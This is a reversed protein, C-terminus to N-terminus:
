SVVENEAEKVTKKPDIWTGAIKEDIMTKYEENTNYQRIFKFFDDLIFAPASKGRTIKEMLDDIEQTIDHRDNFDSTERLENQLQTVYMQMAMIREAKSFSGFDGKTRM